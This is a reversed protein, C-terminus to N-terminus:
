NNAKQYYIRQNNELSNFWKIDWKELYDYISSKNETSMM